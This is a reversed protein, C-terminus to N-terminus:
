AMGYSLRNTAPKGNRRDPIPGLEPWTPNIISLTRNTELYEPKGQWNKNWQTSWVWIDYPSTVTSGNTASTGLQSLRVGGLLYFSLLLLMANLPTFVSDAKGRCWIINLPWSCPTGRDVSNGPEGQLNPPGRVLNKCNYTAVDSLSFTSMLRDTLVVRRRVAFYPWSDRPVRFRIDSHQRPGSAIWYDTLALVVICCVYRRTSSSARSRFVYMDLSSCLDQDYIEVLGSVLFSQAPSSWCYNLRYVPQWTCASFPLRTM